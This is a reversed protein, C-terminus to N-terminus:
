KKGRRRSPKRAATGSVVAAPGVPGRFSVTTIHKPVKFCHYRNVIEIPHIIQVPQPIFIDRNVIIPPCVIREPVCGM